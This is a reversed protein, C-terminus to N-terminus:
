KWTAKGVELKLPQDLLTFTRKAEPGRSGDAKVGRVKWQYSGAPLAPLATEVSPSTWVVPKGGADPVVEVEYSRAYGVSKWSLNIVVPKGGETQKLKAAEGPLLLSPPEPPKPPAPVLPVPELTPMPVVPRSPPAPAAAAPPPPPPVERAALRPAEGRAVTAKQGPYLPRAVGQAEVRVPGGSQANVETKGQEDVDVAFRTPPPNHSSVLQWAQDATKAAQPYRAAQFLEEAQKVLQAAEKSKPAPTAPDAQKVANRAAELASWAIAREPDAPAEAAPPAAQLLLALALSAIM